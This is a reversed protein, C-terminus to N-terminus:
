AAAKLQKAKEEAEKKTSFASIRDLRAPGEKWWIYTQWSFEVTLITGDIRAYYVKQGEKPQHKKSFQM